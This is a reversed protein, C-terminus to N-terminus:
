GEAEREALLEAISDCQPSFKRGAGLLRRALSGRLPIVRVVIEDKGAVPQWDLKWGPQIGLQRASEAPISVMNEQTVTTMM